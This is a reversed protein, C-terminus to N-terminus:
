HKKSKKMTKRSLHRKCMPFKKLTESYSVAIAQAPSVFRGKKYEGMNIAIKKQLYKRCKGISKRKSKSRKRKSSKRLSKKYAM